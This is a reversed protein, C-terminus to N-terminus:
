LRLSPDCSDAGGGRALDLNLHTFGAAVARVVRGARAACVPSGEPMSWDVAYRLRGTHSVAGCHAQTVEHTVGEPYPLTYVASDDPVQLSGIQSSWRYTTRSPRKREVPAFTCLMTTAGPPLEVTFPVARSPQMNQCRAQVTILEPWASPNEAVVASVGAEQQKLTVVPQAQAVGTPLLSIGLTLARLVRQLTFDSAGCFLRRPSKPM